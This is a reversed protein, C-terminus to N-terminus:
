KLNAKLTEIADLPLDTCGAEDFLAARGCASDYMRFSSHGVGPVEMVRQKMTGPHRSLLYAIYDIGRAFRTPGQQEAACSKDLAKQDPDNDATGLLYVVDQGLYHEELAKPDLPRPVYAPLRGDLGYHWADANPCAASAAERGPPIPRDDTFYLYSSPNAVVYRIHIGLADLPAQGHGVAAYRQVFQGGASHGAIVVIGLRPFIRRDALRALITDLVSYSSISAPERAGSGRIWGHPSWRLVDDSLHYADIDRQILFQPTVIITDQATGNAQWAANEGALLDDRSLGHIAVVARVVGPQPHSWDHSLRIPVTGAGDVTGVNLRGDPVIPVPKLALEDLPDALARDPPIAALGAVLPFIAVVLCFFKRM